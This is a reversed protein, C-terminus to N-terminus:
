RLKLTKEILGWKSVLHMNIVHYYEKVEYIYVHIGCNVLLQLGAEPPTISTKDQSMVFQMM